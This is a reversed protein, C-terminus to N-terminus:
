NQQPVMKFQNDEDMTVLFSGSLDSNQLLLKSLPRIIMRNFANKLPRAGYNEDFGVHQIRKHFSQDLRLTIQRDILKQNLVHIERDLLSKMATEDLHQYQLTGDLRGIVEPKLYGELQPLNTTIFIITNKFNVVHGQTDTLRGDDLIQLLLDSFSHHAKEIEDFLIVSYPNRRVAETLIGGKEYGVYGPPAGILKATAHSENYESLDFRILFKEDNFFYQALAKATETKGVGSPGMLIFSGLPRSQDSLGAHAAILTDAIEAIAEDQGIVRDKLYSELELLNEQQTHLIREVPIGTSKSIVEGIHQRSLKWLIDCEQIKVELQPIKEYKIQSADAFNGESEHKQLLFHAKDLQSKLESVKKLELTQKDWKEHDVQYQEELEQIESALASNQPTSSLLIKKSRILADLEFLEPPMSDASLKLAASAEDIIDIAKDPLFRDSMYQDSLYSAAVIAEETIDIGHHIEMKEKLGMLIQITDEKTPEEVKVKHFRRELASDSEIYQKYEDQTTAGICNLEGRALAPKLLNAADMAGDTKGAGILLHIEDIFIIADRGQDKLFKILEEIKEEFQGRFKTGSMLMGMNLSYIVKGQIIDPVQNNHILGALGEIIATKGVGPSGVLVPNNKTRRCLIEQVRRIELSRGIVPDLKGEEVLDNLNILYDPTESEGEGEPIEVELQPFIKKYNALFDAEIIKDRGKQISNSSALTMWESLKSSPNLQELKISDATPAQEILGIIIKLEDKLYKSSISNPNNILGLLFHAETIETNKRNLAESQALEMAGTIIPDLSHM